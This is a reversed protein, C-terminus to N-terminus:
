IGLFRQISRFPLSFQDPKGEGARHADIWDPPSAAARWWAPEEIGLALLGLILKGLEAGLIQWLLIATGAENIRPGHRRAAIKETTYLARNYTGAVGARAGSVHNITAEIIHPPIRLDAL